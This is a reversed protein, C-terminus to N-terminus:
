AVFPISHNASEMSMWDNVMKNAIENEFDLLNHDIVKLDISAVETQDEKGQKVNETDRTVMKKGIMVSISSEHREKTGEDRM